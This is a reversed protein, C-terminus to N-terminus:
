KRIRFAMAMGWNFTKKKLIAFGSALIMKELKTVTFSHLHAHNWVHGNKKTWLFWVFSFLWNGSDLEIIAEGNKVLVRKIEKLVLSPNDVHELVETCIVLDFTNAPFPIKEASATQLNLKSYLTNGYAVGQKYVDIGFCKAKPFKKAIQSLFWGSACGVDLIKKPYNEVLNIVTNFKRTHWTKQFFNSKVGDQYYTVPVQEIVSSSHVHKDMVIGVIM